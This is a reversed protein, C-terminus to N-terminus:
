ARESVTLLFDAEVHHIMRRWSPHAAVLEHVTDGTLTHEAVYPRYHVTVLHAGADGLLAAHALTENAGQVSLYYLVESLVILDFDRRPWDEPLRGRLVEVNATKSLRRRAVEVAHPHRDMAIVRDCREALLATLLGTACGPEFAIRYRPNPLSTVTLRYKRRESFRAEQDWPDDVKWMRDFYGDSTATM